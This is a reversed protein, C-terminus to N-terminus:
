PQNGGAKIREDAARASMAEYRKACLGDPHPKEAPFAVPFCGNGCGMVKTMSLEIKEKELLGRYVVTLVLSVIMAGPAVLIAELLALLLLMLMSMVAPIDLFLFACLMAVRYGLGECSNWSKDEGVLWHGRKVSGLVFPIDYILFMKAVQFSSSHISSSCCIAAVSKFFHRFFGNGGSVAAVRDDLANSRQPSSEDNCVKVTWDVNTGFAFLMFASQGFPPLTAGVALAVATLLVPYYAGGHEFVLAAILVGAAAVCALVVTAARSIAVFINVSTSRVWPDHISAVLGLLGVAVTVMLDSATSIDNDVEEAMEGVASPADSM